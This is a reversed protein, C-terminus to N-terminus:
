KTQNSSRFKSPVFTKPRSPGHALGRYSYPRHTGTTAKVREVKPFAKRVEKGFQKANLTYFGSRKCWASYAEYLDSCLTTTGAEALCEEILFVKAPNSEQRYDELTEACLTPIVFYGRQQLRVYGELAWNFIGPLEAKLKDKLLPDQRERPITVRFPIVIMRRWLGGSRDRFQPRNNTSLILRATPYAEIGPLNKRDFYMRDGATFQKLFGEAVKDIEGVEACINALKGITTTLQFRSGFMELPVHAVNEPGLLSTLVELLVSKGNAGEGEAVVFSHQSTDTMLLYGTWDQILDIREQDGEMVEDLFNRWRVCDAAQDFHVPFGVTSFWNPSNPVLRVSGARLTNIDLLGNKVALFPGQTGPGVWAPMEVDNPVSVFSGLANLTNAVLAKGVRLVEGYNNTISNEDFYSKIFRTLDVKMAAEDVRMFRGDRYRFWENRWFRVTLQGNGDCGEAQLFARALAHYDADSERPTAGQPRWNPRAPNETTDKTKRFPLTTAMRTSRRERNITSNVTRERVVLPCASLSRGLGFRAVRARSNQHAFLQRRDFWCSDANSDCRNTPGHLIAVAKSSFKDTKFANLLEDGRV